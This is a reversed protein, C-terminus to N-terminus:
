QAVTLPSLNLSLSFCCNGIRVSRGLFEVSKMSRTSSFSCYDTKKLSAPLVLKEKGPIEYFAFSEISEVSSNSEFIIKELRGCRNFSNNSIEKIHSPISISEIDRATFIIVDFIGSGSKREKVICKDILCKFFKNESSIEVNRLNPTNSFCRSAIQEVSAPLSLSEISNYNFAFSEICKLESNTSCKVTKLKDHYGFSNTKIRTIQPPTM